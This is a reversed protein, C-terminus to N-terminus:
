IGNALQVEATTDGTLAASVAYGIFTNSTATATVNLTGTIWYVKAGQAIAGAAKPLIVAGKLLVAGTAGNAIDTQAVGFLSGVFVFDGSNIDSGSLNVYDIVEGRKVFNKM